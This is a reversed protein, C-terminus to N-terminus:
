KGGVCCVIKLSSRSAASCKGAAAAPLFFYDGSRIPRCWNEACLVGEGELCIWVSAPTNLIVSGNNLTYRSMAFCPTDIEGILSEVLMHEDRYLETPQKRGCEVVKQGYLDYNFCDLATERELGLYMEQSSLHYDGCWYEPQITFDTPEQVELIMCCSGIAHIIGADVFFVDGTHVPVRNVFATMTDKDNESNEVAAMFEDKRVKRDFGFYICANPRTALILWAEAKGYSSNFHKRSFERTPHVQMPLRIASDLYKVLVGLDKRDGLYEKPHERLLQDFPKGDELRLSIGELPDDHGPNIARVNSCIWEEPENGDTEADGLFDHFLKGGLYVRFVRNRRFFVPRTWSSGTDKRKTGDM